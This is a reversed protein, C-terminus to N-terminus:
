SGTKPRFATQRVAEVFFAIGVLTYLGAATARLGWDDSSLLSHLPAARVWSAWQAAGALTFAISAIWEPVASSRDAPDALENLSRERVELDRATRLLEAAIERATMSRHSRLIAAAASRCASHPEMLREVLLARLYRALRDSDVNELRIQEAFERLARPASGIESSKTIM